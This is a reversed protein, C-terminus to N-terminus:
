RQRLPINSSVIRIAGKSIGKQALLSEFARKIVDPHECPGIIIQNLLHSLKLESVGIDPRDKFQLRLVEQPIGGVTQISKEVVPSSHMRPSAIVRWEQEEAFGPHKTCLVAFRFMNFVMGEFDIRDLTKVLDRNLEILDSIRQLEDGIQMRTWYAVPSAFIGLEPNQVFMANANLVLAVGANGGYARWMSLRGNDDEHDQHESVCTIYTDDRIGPMWSNFNDTAGKSSGDYISDLMKRFNQGPQATYAESLCQLGYEIEMYDNMTSTSRMWIEENTIIKCATEASTYYVFRSQEDQVAKTRRDTHPFFIRRIEEHTM